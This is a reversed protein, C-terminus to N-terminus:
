PVDAQQLLQNFFTTVIWSFIFQLIAFSFYNLKCHLYILLGFCLLDLWISLADLAVEANNMNMSIIILVRYYFNELRFFLLYIELEFEFEFDFDNLSISLVYSLMVGSTVSLKFFDWLGVFAHKSFGTWSHPCGGCGMYCFLGLVSVWWSFDLIIAIGVIGVRLKYVFLWSVFVHLALALSSVWAIVATKLQCQLFEDIYVLICLELANSDVMVGGRGGARGGGGITRHTNQGMLKAVFHKLRVHWAWSDVCTLCFPSQLNFFKPLNYRIVMM